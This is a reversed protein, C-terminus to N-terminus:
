TASPEKPVPMVLIKDVRFGDMDIVEFRLANWEFHDGSTPIRGLYAMIFGGLTQFYGREENPLSSIRFIEEFEDIPLMGDLLWSGDERQIVEPESSRGIIPLEGVIAELIDTPTVMGQVGGFEDIVLILQQGTERFLEMVRLAQMSEPVFFPTELCGELDLNGNDLSSALLRKAQVIGEIHDLDGSAVPFRSHVSEVIRRRTEEPPDELDLWIFEHRPTMLTGVRRDSLRFVGEVMDQEAEEFIGAETGQEILVRIEEETVSPEMSPRVGIIRLVLTTSFSLLRVVPSVLRSLVGMPGAVASATKEPNNLALRKPALEGFILSLYTIMFVVLGLGIAGSYPALVDVKSLQEAIRSAITAGGFAGALIGVLTIGVQVTSLFDAPDEALNLAAQAKEDGENARQQLRAKRASVIAIEAMALLGNALILVLILIIELALSGM